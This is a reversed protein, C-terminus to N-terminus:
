RDARPKAGAQRVAEPASFWVFCLGVIGMLVIAGLAIFFGAVAAAEMGSYHEVHASLHWRGPIRASLAVVPWRARWGSCFRTTRICHPSRRNRADGGARADRPDPRAM